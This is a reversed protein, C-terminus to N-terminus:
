SESATMRFHDICFTRRFIKTFNWPFCRHQPKKKSLTAPWLGKRHFVKWVVIKGPVGRPPQKRVCSSDFTMPNFDWSCWKWSKMQNLSHRFKHWLKWTLQFCPISLNLVWNPSKKSHNEFNIALCRFRKLSKNVTKVLERMTKKKQRNELIKLKIWDHNFWPQKTLINEKRKEPILNKM